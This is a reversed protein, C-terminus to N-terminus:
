SVARIGAALTQTEEVLAVLSGSFGRHTGRQADQYADGAGRGWKRNIEGLVRGGESADDFLALAALSTTGRADALAREVALHADGRGIRRRRVAEMCAAEIGLRCFGPIVRSAVTDPLKDDKEVAKADVFYQNVPDIKKRVEVVSGPRRTVELATHTLGLRHLSAPLRDDHTLVVLQRDEAVEAFVKALGDVRAPDMAQVPDDIVIFRFPSDPLMVRPFFLSLALCNVEGQSVVGLAAGEAGDVNVSLDVRRRTRSGSLDVGTLEVNSQLRLSQWLGIAREAIPQFRRSRIETTVEGLAKEADKLRGATEDAALASRAEDIWATLRMALPRWADEMEARRAAAEKTVAAVASELESHTSRLHGALASTDDPVTSWREWAERAESVDLDAPPGALEPPTPRLLARADRVAANMESEAADYDAAIEKLETVQSEARTRWAGDLTGAGCVPCPRDGHDTHEALATELLDVIRRSRGSQTGALEDLRAGAADLRAAAAETTDADPTTLRSLADLAEAGEPAPSAGSAVAEAADLDWSRGELAAGATAARADDAAALTPALDDKLRKKSEKLPKELELRRRRILDTAAALEDLGLVASLADFLSSPNDAVLGLEPHSLLPRHLDVADAWGYGALDTQSEGHPQVVTDSDEANKADDDWARSMRATGRSGEVSFTATVSAGDPRHLNRWGQKWEAPKNRWRFSDGTLLVELAEAFSSKGSGNRGVVVTLGPGPQLDLRATPGIGRFGTAEISTLYAAPAAADGTTDAADPREVPQGDVAADFAEEGAMVATVLDAVRHDVDEDALWALVDDILSM